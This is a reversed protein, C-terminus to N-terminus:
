DRKPPGRRDPSRPPGHPHIPGAADAGKGDIHVTGPVGRFAGIIRNSGPAGAHYHFGRIPDTHGGCEDLGDPERHDENVHAYIAFGDLAYGIM